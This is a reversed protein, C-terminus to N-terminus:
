ALGSTQLHPCTQVKGTAPCADTIDKAEYTGNRARQELKFEGARSVGVNVILGINGSDFLSELLAPVKGAHM